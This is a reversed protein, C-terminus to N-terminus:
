QLSITMTIKKQENCPLSCQNNCTNRNIHGYNIFTNIFIKSKKMKKWAIKSPLPMKKKIECTKLHNLISRLSWLNWKSSCLHFKWNWNVWNYFFAWHHKYTALDSVCCFSQALPIFMNTKLTKFCVIEWLLTELKGTHVWFICLYSTSPDYQCLLGM